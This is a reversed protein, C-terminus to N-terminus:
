GARAIRRYTGFVCWAPVALAIWLGSPEATVAYHLAAAGGATAYLLADARWVMQFVIGPDGAPSSIPTTALVVPMPGKLSDYARATVVVVVGLVGGLVAERLHQAHGTVGMSVSLALATAILGLLLPFLAHLLYLKPTGIGYQATSGATDAAHRFGDIFASLACYSGLAVAASVGWQASETLAVTSQQLVLLGGLVCAVLGVCSVAFRVPTRLSGVLDRVMFLIPLPLTRVARVGRLATPKARLSGLATSFDGLGAASGVTEWAHAQALLQWSSLRRLLAPMTALALACLGALVGIGWLSVSQTLVGVQVLGAMWGIVGSALVLIVALIWARSELLQGALWVWAALVAGLACVIVGIWVSTFGGLTVGLLAGVSAGILTITALTVRFGHGLMASRAGPAGALLTVFFPTPAVPGRVAGIAAFSALAIGAAAVGISTGAGSALVSSVIQQVSESRLELVIARVLPFVATIMALLVAYLLYATDGDATRSGRLRYAHRIRRARARARAAANGTRNAQNRLNM